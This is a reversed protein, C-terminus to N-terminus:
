NIGTSGFGGEQRLTESLDRAEVLDARVVVGVVMQAIRDGHNIVVEKLSINGLIIKIEGRYDSDITGPANVVMLGTKLSIGSRPRIQVEFGNPIELSFGTPVLVWEFPAITLTQNKGLNARIDLGAAFPSAYSPLEWESDFSPLKKFKLQIKNESM